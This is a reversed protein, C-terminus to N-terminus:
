DTQVRHLVARIAEDFVQRVGTQTLASCEFYKVAQIEKALEEGDAATIPEQLKEKLKAIATSDDRLDLKTGVLIVPTRPCHHRVEPIWKVFIRFCGVSYVSYVTCELRRSLKPSKPGLISVIKVREHM